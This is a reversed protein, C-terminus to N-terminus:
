IKTWLEFGGLNLIQKYEDRYRFKKTGLMDTSRSILLLDPLRDFTDIGLNIDAGFPQNGIKVDGRSIIPTPLEKYTAESCVIKRNECIGLLLDKDWSPRTPLRGDVLYSDDHTLLVLGITM